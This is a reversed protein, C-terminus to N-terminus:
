DQPQAPLDFGCNLEACVTITHVYRIQGKEIRFSHADPLKDEGFRLLVTVAGLREDVIYSRNVLKISSPVGVNCTDEATAEGPAGRGTYLGGELRACPTGWPVVVNPDNFKDLYANAAAIITARSDREAQPIESWDEAKSYKLTDAAKFLWDDHDTVLANITSVNGGRVQLQVGLVYPHEPDTVIVETFTTCNVADYLTRHLDIKLPKTLIGRSMTGLEMQENYTMWTGLPLATPDGKTQAEVYSQAAHELQGMSCGGPGFQAYAPATSLIAGCALLAGSIPRFM